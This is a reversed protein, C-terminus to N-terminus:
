LASKLFPERLIVEPETEDFSISHVSFHEMVKNISDFTVSDADGPQATFKGNSKTLSFHRVGPGGAPALVAFTLLQETNTYLLFVGPESCQSLLKEAGGASMNGHYYGIDLVNEAEKESSSKLASPMEFMFTGDSNVEEGGDYAMNEKASMVEVRPILDSTSAGAHTMAVRQQMVVSQKEEEQRKRRLLVFAVIAATVVVAACIAIIIVTINDNDNDNDNGNGRPLREIGELSVGNTQESIEKSNEKLKKEAEKSDLAKGDKEVVVNVDTTTSSVEKKEAKKMEGQKGCQEVTTSGEFFKSCIMQMLKGTDISSNKCDLALKVQTKTENVVQQHMIHLTCDGFDISQTTDRKRRRRFLTPANQQSAKLIQNLFHELSYKKNKDWNLLTKSDLVLTMEDSKKLCSHGNDETPVCNEDSKCPSLKCATNNYECRRGTLERPCKCSFTGNLNTCSGRQGCQGSLQCENVDNECRKGTWEAKCRCQFDGDKLESCVGANLCPNKSCVTRNCITINSAVSTVKVKNSLVDTAAKEFDEPFFNHCKRKEDYNNVKVKIKVVTNKDFVQVKVKRTEIKGAVNEIVCHYEASDELIAEEFQFKNSTATDYKKGDKYWQYTPQPVGRVNVELHFEENQGVSVSEPQTIISPKEPPSSFFLFM